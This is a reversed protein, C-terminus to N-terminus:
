ILDNSVSVAAAAQALFALVKLSQIKFHGYSLVYYYLQSM